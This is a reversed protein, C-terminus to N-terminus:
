RAKNGLRKDHHESLRYPPFDVSLVTGGESRKLRPKGEVAYHLAIVLIADEGEREVHVRSVPTEFHNTPLPLRNVREPVNVGRFRFKMVGDETSEQVDVHGYVELFVRSSGDAFMRFGPYTATRTSAKGKHDEVRRAYVKGSLDNPGDLQTGGEQWSAQDDLKKFPDPESSVKVRAKGSGCATLLLGLAVGVVRHMYAMVARITARPGAIVLGVAFGGRKSGEASGQYFWGAHDIRGRRSTGAGRRRLGRAGRPDRRRTGWLGLGVEHLQVRKQPTAGTVRSLEEELPADADLSAEGAVDPAVHEDDPVAGVDVTVDLDLDADDRAALNVGVNAGKLGDLQVRGGDHAAIKVRGVDEDVTTDLEFAVALHSGEVPGGITLAGAASLAIGGEGGSRAVLAHERASGGGGRFV